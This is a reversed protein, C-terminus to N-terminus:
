RQQHRRQDQDRRQSQQAFDHMHQHLPHGQMDPEIGDAVVQGREFAHQPYMVQMYPGQRGAGDGQGGVQFDARQGVPWRNESCCALGQVCLVADAMDGQLGFHRCRRRQHACEM